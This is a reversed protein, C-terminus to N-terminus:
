NLFEGSGIRDEMHELQLKFTQAEASQPSNVRMLTILRCLHVDMEGKTANFGTEKEDYQINM